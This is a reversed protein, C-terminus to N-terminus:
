QYHECIRQLYENTVISKIRATFNRLHPGHDIAASADMLNGMIPNAIGLVEADSMSELKM